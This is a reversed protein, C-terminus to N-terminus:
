EFYFKEYKITKRKEIWEYSLISGISVDYYEGKKFVHERMIGEEKSGCLSHLKVVQSNKVFTENCLKHLKLVDFVYDYLNWELYMALSLSRAEKEPICYGWSCRSNIRDIDFVEILGIPRSDLNIIWKIQDNQKSINEFWKIQKEITLEPDTNMFRTVYPLMRWEMVMELDESRLRKMVVDM